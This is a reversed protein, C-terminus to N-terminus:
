FRWPSFLNIDSQSEYLDIWDQISNPPRYVFNILYPKCNECLIELWISEVNNNEIDHRCNYLINENIYVILGGGKKGIRYKREFKYNIIQLENDNINSHLFTEFLRLISPSKSHGLQYKLEDTKPLM